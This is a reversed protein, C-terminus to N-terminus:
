KIKFADSFKRIETSKGHILDTIEILYKSYVEDVQGVLAKLQGSAANFLYADKGDGAERVFGASCLKKLLRGAKETEVYIAAGLKAADWKEDPRRYCQLLAELHPVSEISTLIFRKISDPITDTPTNM